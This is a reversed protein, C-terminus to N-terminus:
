GREFGELGSMVKQFVHPVFAATEGKLDNLPLPTHDPVVIQARPSNMKSPLPETRLETQSQVARDVLRLQRAM